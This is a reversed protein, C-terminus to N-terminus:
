IVENSLCERIMALLPTRSRIRSVIFNLLYQESIPTICENVYLLGPAILIAFRSVYHHILKPRVPRVM